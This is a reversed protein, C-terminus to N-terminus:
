FVPTVCAHICYHMHTHTHAHIRARTCFIARVHASLNGTQDLPGSYNNYWVSAGDTFCGGPDEPNIEPNNKTSQKYGFSKAAAKCAEKSQIKSSGTPCKNSNSTSRVYYIQATLAATPPAPTPAALMSVATRTSMTSIQLLHHLHPSPEQHWPPFQLHM